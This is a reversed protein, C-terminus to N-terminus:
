LSLSLFAFILASCGGVINTFIKASKESVGLQFGGVCIEM